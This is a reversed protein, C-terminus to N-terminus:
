FIIFYKGQPDPPTPKHFSTKDQLDSLYHEQKIEIFYSVDVM